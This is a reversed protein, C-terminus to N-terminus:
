REAFYHSSVHEFIKLLKDYGLVQIEIVAENGLIRYQSEADRKRVEKWYIAKSRIREADERSIIDSSM